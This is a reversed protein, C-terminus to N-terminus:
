VLRANERKQDNRHGRKRPRGFIIEEDSWGRGYRRQLRTRPQDTIEAWEAMCHTEGNYTLMVNNRKNRGQEKLTAWRCNNPEYNGNNDIRDISLEDSYGNALAWEAFANFDNAWEDCVRIGRDYYRDANKSNPNQCRHRMKCWIGHLRTRGMGHKTIVDHNYCGCSLTRGRRLGNSRVVVENGCDCRCLWTVGGNLREKSERIVTLRGFRQGRLDIKAGM